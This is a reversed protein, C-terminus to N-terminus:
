IKKHKEKSKELSNWWSKIYNKDVTINTSSYHEKLSDIYKCSEWNYCEMIKARNDKGCKNCTWRCTKGQGRNKRNDSYREKWSYEYIKGTRKNTIKM